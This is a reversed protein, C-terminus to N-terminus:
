GAHCSRYLDDALTALRVNRARIQPFLEPTALLACVHEITLLFHDAPPVIFSEDRGASSVIIENALDAPTTFARAVRVSGRDGKLVYTSQYPLGFGISFHFIEKQETVASGYMTTLLEGNYVKRGQFIYDQGSFFYCAASLPYRIQDHFAGGGCDPDNRWNEAPLAPITFTARLSRLRGIRGSAALAKIAAHQPHHLYMLNEYLLRGHRDAVDHMRIVEAADLGLPKECLVHKGATLARIAWEAHLHNPLSLYILDIDARELLADYSLIECDPADFRLRTTHPDRSGIAILQARPSQRLAPLFRRCAIDSYGLLGVRVPQSPSTNM